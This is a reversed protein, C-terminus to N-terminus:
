LKIKLHYTNEGVRKYLNEAEGTKDATAEVGIFIKPLSSLSLPNESEAM